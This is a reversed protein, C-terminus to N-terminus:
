DIVITKSKLGGNKLKILTKENIQLTIRKGEPKQIDLFPVNEITDLRHPDPDSIGLRIQNTTAPDDIKGMMFLRTFIEEGDIIRIENGRIIVAGNIRAPDLFDASAVRIFHPSILVGGDRHAGDEKVSILGQSIHVSEGMEDGVTISKSIILKKVRAVEDEANLNNFTGIFYGISAILAGLEMYALKTKLM